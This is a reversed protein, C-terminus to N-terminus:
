LSTRRWYSFGQLFHPSYLTSSSRQVFCNRALIYLIVIFHCSDVAPSSNLNNLAKRKWLIWNKGQSLQSTEQWPIFVTQCSYHGSVRPLIIIPSCCLDSTDRNIRELECIPDSGSLLSSLWDLDLQIKNRM